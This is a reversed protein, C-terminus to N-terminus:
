SSFAFRLGALVGLFLRTISFTLVRGLTVFGLDLRRVVVFDFATVEILRHIILLGDLLLTSM